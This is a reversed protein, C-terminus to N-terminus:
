ILYHRNMLFDLSTDPYKNVAVYFRPELLRPVFYQANDVDGWDRIPKYTENRIFRDLNEKDLEIYQMVYNRNILRSYIRQVRVKELTENLPKSSLVVFKKPEITKKLLPDFGCRTYEWENNSIESMYIPEDRNRVITFIKGKRTYISKQLNFKNDSIDTGDYFAAGQWHLKGVESSANNKLVM